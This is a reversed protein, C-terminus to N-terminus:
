INDSCNYHHSYFYRPIPFASGCLWLLLLFSSVCLFFLYCLTSLPSASRLSCPVRSALFLPPHPQEYAHLNCPIYRPVPDSSHALAAATYAINVLVRPVPVSTEM